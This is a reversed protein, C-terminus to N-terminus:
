EDRGFYAILSGQTTSIRTGVIIDPRADKNLDAIDITVIEGSGMQSILTGSSPLTGYSSYVILEGTFLLSTRTGVAVDPFVDNNMDLIAISLVEGIDEVYDDPYHPTVDAPFPSMGVTDPLGFVGEENLYLMLEGVGNKKSVGVLIDDDGGDDEQMDVVMVANVGGSALYRSNWVFNGSANGDNLYIDIRGFDIAYHSGVVLDQDGDGDIDGTDVAWIAGLPYEDAAGARTVYQWSSFAGTGDGRFTEFGGTIGFPSKLGTVIDMHGDANFDAIALGMVENLGSSLYANDPTTSIIGDAGTFWVQINRETSNDLGSIIDHTGDGTFDYHGLVNVNYGADRRYTPDSEFLEGTPTTMNEWMNHFILMNGIGEGLATGLVIDKDNNADEDLDDSMVSLVRETNSIHIEVFNWEDLLMDGFNRVVLTDAVIPIDVYKNVTTSTYGAPDTETVTYIDPALNFSYYGRSNTVTSDGSSMRITVNPLGEESAEYIGNSNADLYAHGELTGYVEGAFDGFDVRVTDDAAVITASGSNPTTSSYGVPDTEVVMYVGQQAIFSYFGSANTLAESGDDLSILVGEIPNEGADKIGDKDIDEYVYGMIVGIPLTSLDGFNVVQTQGAILTVSVINATTSTYGFPDVEQISYDGAPLPFFYRGFTDTLITRNHGALRIEVNPIGTEGPDMAGNGDADHFVKGRIMSSTLSMNRVYIESNMTVSLFGGNTEYKKDYRDSEGLATVKVRRIKSLLNQPVATIATIEGSELEGSSDTDGYLQDSTAPDDDHDIYYQFLPQPIIWTPTLNPGRILALNSERLENSGTGENNGYVYMKLVFLNRNPGDEEPDDSRDAATIVGDNSSDLTFVVTEADSDFDEAPLYLTAGAPTVRNPSGARDIAVLPAQADITRGNDIDANFVIQYPEAYVIPAQGRFYDTQSGAQRLYDTIFDLAVRTNQQAEAYDNTTASGREFLVFLGAFSVLVFGLVVISIMIEILTFGAISRRNKKASM